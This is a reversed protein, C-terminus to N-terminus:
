YSAKRSIIMHHTSCLLPRKPKRFFYSYLHIHCLYSLGTTLMPLYLYCSSSNLMPLLLHPSIIAVASLIFVLRILSVIMIIVVQKIMRLDAYCSCKWLWWTVVLLVHVTYLFFRQSSAHCSLIGRFSSCYLRIYLLLFVSFFSLFFAEVYVFNDKFNFGTSCYILCRARIWVCVCVGPHHYTNKLFCLWRFILLCRETMRYKGLQSKICLLM